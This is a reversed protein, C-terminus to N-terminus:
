CVLSLAAVLAPYESAVFQALQDEDTVWVTRETLELEIWAISM